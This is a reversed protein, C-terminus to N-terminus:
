RLDERVWDAFAKDKPCHSRIYREEEFKKIEEIQKEACCPGIAYSGFLLGGTQQSDTFDTNCLDCVVCRGPDLTITEFKGFIEELENM